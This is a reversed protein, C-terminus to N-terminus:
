QPFLIIVLILDSPLSTRSSGLSMELIGIGEISQGAKQLITSFTM